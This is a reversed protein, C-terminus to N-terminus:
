LWKEPHDFVAQFNANGLFQRLAHIGEDELASALRERITNMFCRQQEVARQMLKTLDKKPDSKPRGFVYGPADWLLNAAIGSTKKVGKPVTFQRAAKKKGEGSRTDVLGAFSGDRNLVVVFPIPQKQFGEAAVDALGETQLRRYYDNLSHLIM